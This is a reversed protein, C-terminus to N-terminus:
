FYFGFKLGLRSCENVLPRILDRHPGMDMADRDTYSSPWLCFGDHHKCFPIVYKMGADAAIQMLKEPQYNEATFMPIFDDPQFGDGYTKKVYEKHGKGHVMDAMFWDPYMAGKERKPSWGAVSYLGWDIFMGFKADRFWEPCTHTRISNVDPSYPGYITISGPAPDKHTLVKQNAPEKQKGKQSYAPYTITLSLLVAVITIISKRKM